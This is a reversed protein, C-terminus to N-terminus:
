MNKRSLDAFFEQTLDQADPESYGSRRVYNYLPPWYTACLKELAVQAASSHYDGAQLVVTWNTTDFQGPNGKAPAYKAEPVPMSRIPCACM